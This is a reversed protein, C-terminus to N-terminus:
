DIWEDLYIYGYEKPSSENEKELEDKKGELTDSIFSCASNEDTLTKEYFETLTDPDFVVARYTNEEENLVLKVADGFEEPPRVKYFVEHDSEKKKVHNIKEMIEAKEM